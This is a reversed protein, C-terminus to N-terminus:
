YEEEFLKDIITKTDVGSEFQQKVEKGIQEAYSMDWGSGCFSIINDNPDNYNIADQALDNDCTDYSLVGTTKDYRFYPFMGHRVSENHTNVELKNKMEIEYNEIDELSIWEPKQELGNWLEKMKQIQEDVTDAWLVRENGNGNGLFYDCDTQLRGLLMYEYEKSESENLHQKFENISTYLKQINNEKVINKKEMMQLANKFSEADEEEEFEKIKQGKNYVTTGKVNLM